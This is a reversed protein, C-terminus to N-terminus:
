AQTAAHQLSQPPSCSSCEFTDGWLCPGSSRTGSEGCLVLSLPLSPIQFRGHVGDTGRLSSADHFRLLLGSDTRHATHRDLPLSFHPDVSSTQLPVMLRDNRPETM